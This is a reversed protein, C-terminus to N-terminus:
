KSDMKYETWYSGKRAWEHNTNTTAAAAEGRRMGGSQGTHHRHNGSQTGSWAVCMYGHLHHGATFQLIAVRYYILWYYNLKHAIHM